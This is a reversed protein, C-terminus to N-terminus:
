SASADHLGDQLVRVPPSDVTNPSTCVIPLMYAVKTGDSRVCM